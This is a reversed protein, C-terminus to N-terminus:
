AQIMEVTVDERSKEYFVMRWEVDNVPEFHLASCAVHLKGQERGGFISVCIGIFAQSENPNTRNQRPQDSHVCDTVTFTGDPLDQSLAYRMVTYHTPSEQNQSNFHERSIERQEYEQVILTHQTGTTPHIFEIREGPASVHFHPGSIAAPRQMLTISLTTIKPKRKKTWPFAARWIAWGYAPDLGYHQIVNKAEPGNGEPFCPNWSLGCGHTGSLVAGNLVVKRNINIALPNEADIQMLQEDTM